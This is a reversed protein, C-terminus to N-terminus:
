IISMLGTSSVNVICGTEKDVNYMINELSKVNNADGNGGLIFGVIDLVVKVREQTWRANLEEVLEAGYFPTMGDRHFIGLNYVKDVYNKIITGYYNLVLNVMSCNKYTEALVEIGRKAGQFLTVMRGDGAYGKGLYHQCALQIPNYIYQLDSKNTAYIIRCFSQFMGPEQLYMVNNRILIKTGVPKYGLIALKVIVSLPDLVYLRVNVNEKDDYVRNQFHHQM